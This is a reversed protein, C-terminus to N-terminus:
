KGKNENMADKSEYDWSWDWVYKLSGYSNNVIYWAKIGEYNTKDGAKIEYMGPLAWGGSATCTWTDNVHNYSFRATVTGLYDDSGNDKENAQWTVTFNHDKDREFEAM